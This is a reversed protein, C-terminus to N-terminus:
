GGAWALPFTVITTGSATPWAMDNLASTVCAIVPAARVEGSYRPPSTLRGDAGVSVRAVLKGVAGRGCTRFPAARLLAQVAADDLAGIVVADGVAVAGVGAAATLAGAPVAGPPGLALSVRARGTGRLADLVRAARGWRVDADAHVLVAAGAHRAQDQVSAAALRPLDPQGGVDALTLPDGEAPLFVIAHSRVFVSAPSGVPTVSGPRDLPREGRDTVFAVDPVGAADASAIVSAVDSARADPEAALRLARVGCLARSLEPIPLGAAPNRPFSSGDVTAAGTAAVRLTADREPACPAAAALALTGFLPLLM